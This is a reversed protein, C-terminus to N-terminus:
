HPGTAPSARDARVPDRLGQGGGDFVLEGLGAHGAVVRSVTGSLRVLGPNVITGYGVTVANAKGARVRVSTTARLPDAMAGSQVAGISRAFRVPRVTIRYRGAAKVVIRTVGVRSVARASVGRGLPEEGPEQGGHVVDECATEPAVKDARYV